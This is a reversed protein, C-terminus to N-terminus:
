SSGNSAFIRSQNISWNFFATKLGSVSGGSASKNSSQDGIPDSTCACSRARRSPLCMNANTYSRACGLRPSSRYQRLYKRPFRLVRSVISSAKTTARTGIECTTSTVSMSLLCDMSHGRQTMKAGSRSGLSCSTTQAFACSPSFIAQLRAVRYPEQHVLSM